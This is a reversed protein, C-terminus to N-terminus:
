RRYPSIEDSTDLTWIDVRAGDEPEINTAPDHPMNLAPVSIYLACREMGYDLNRFQIVTSVKSSVKIHRDDPYIAGERSYYGREDESLIRQPDRLDVQLVVHAFSTIPSFAPSGTFNIKHLNLYTSARRTPLSAQANTSART